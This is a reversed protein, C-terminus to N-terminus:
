HMAEVRLQRPGNQMMVSVGFLKQEQNALYDHNFSLIELYDNWIVHLQNQYHKSRPFVRWNVPEGQLIVPDGMSPYVVLAEDLELISGFAASSASLVDGKGETREATGLSRIRAEADIEWPQYKLVSIHQKTALCLKDQVGWAYGTKDWLDSATFLQDFSRRGKPEENSKEKNFSALFGGSQTSGFISHFAWSCATCHQSAIKKPNSYRKVFYEWEFDLNFEFLGDEGAALALSGYSASISHVPADWCKEVRTSIPYKTRGSAGAKVVGTPASVYLTRDYIECDSHPFLCLNDQQGIKHTQLSKRSVSFSSEALRSFKDRVLDRVEPDSFLDQLQYGYLYDSRLFACKLPLRLVDDISLSKILSDWNVTIISGDMGFLYLRGRYVQSDWYQGPVIFRLPQM